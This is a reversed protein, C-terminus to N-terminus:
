LARWAETGVLLTVIQEDDASTDNFPIERVAPDCM